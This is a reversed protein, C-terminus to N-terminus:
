SRKAPAGPTESLQQQIENLRAKLEANEAALKQVLDSLQQDEHQSQHEGDDTGAVKRLIPQQSHQTELIAPTGALREALMQERIEQLQQAFEAKADLLENRSKQAAVLAANEVSAALLAQFMEKREVAFREESELRGQLAAAQATTELLRTILSMADLGQSSRDCCGSKTNCASTSNCASSSSCITGCSLGVIHAQIRGGTEVTSCDSTERPSTGALPCGIGTGDTPPFPSMGAIPCGVGRCGASACACPAPPACANGQFGFVVAPASPAPACGAPGCSAPAQCNFSVPGCNFSAPACAHPTPCNAPAPACAAAPAPCNAPTSFLNGTLIMTPPPPPVEAHVSHECTGGTCAVDADAVDTVDIGCLAALASAVVCAAGECPAAACMSLVCNTQCCESSAVDASGDQDPLKALLERLSAETTSGVQREVEEGNVVLVFAPISNVKFENALEPEDEVDIQRVPLGEAQLRSIIPKMQRCPGCWGATFELLVNDDLEVTPAPAPAPVAHTAATKAAASESKACCDTTLGKLSIGEGASRLEIHLSPVSPAADPASPAPTVALARSRTFKFRPTEARAHMVFLAGGVVCIGVCLAYKLKRM